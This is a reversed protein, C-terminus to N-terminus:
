YIRSRKRRWVVFGVIGLLGAVVLVTRKQEESLQPTAPAQQQRRARVEAAGEAIQKLGLAYELPRVLYADFSDADSLEATHSMAWLAVENGNGPQAIARLLDRPRPLKNMEGSSYFQALKVAVSRSCAFVAAVADDGLTEVFDREDTGVMAVARERQARRARPEAGPIYANPRNGHPMTQALLEASTAAIWSCLFGTLMISRVMVSNSRCAVMVDGSWIAVSM